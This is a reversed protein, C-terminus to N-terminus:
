SSPPWRRPCCGGHEDRTSCVSASGATILFGSIVFFVDVGVYGGPLIGPFLHYVVVAAIAVARVAQIELRLNKTSAATGPHRRVRGARHRASTVDHRPAPPAVTM